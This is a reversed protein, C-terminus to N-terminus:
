VRDSLFGDEAGPTTEANLAENEERPLIEIKDFPEWVYELPGPWVFPKYDPDGPTMEKIHEEFDEPLKFEPDYYPSEPDMRDIHLLCREVQWTELNVARAVGVAFLQEPDENHQTGWYNKAKRLVRIKCTKNLPHDKDIIM